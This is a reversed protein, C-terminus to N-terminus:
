HAATRSPRACRELFRVSSTFLTVWNKVNTLGHSEDDFILLEVDAGAATALKAFERSEAVPVRFDLAGHIILLPADLNAVHTRPSISELFERDHELSGYEAEVVARRLPATGELYSTMSAIGMVDIGGAWCGAQMTLGCLVLYGGYSAGALFVPGTLGCENRVHRLVARMDEIADPRRRRDDLSYWRRGYGTSGRVDPAFVRFGQAALVLRLPSFSVREHELPGGHLLIVVPGSTGPLASPSWYSHVPIAEGDDALATAFRHQLDTCIPVGADFLRTRADTDRDVLTLEAPTTPRSALMAVFRRSPSVSAQVTGAVTMVNVPATDYLHDEGCSSRLGIVRSEGDIAVACVDADDFAMFETSHQDAFAYRWSQVRDSCHDTNFILDGAPTWCTPQNLGDTVVARARNVSEIREVAYISAQWGDAGLVSVAARVHERGGEDALVLVKADLVFGDAEYLLIDRGDSLVIRLDFDGAGRHNTVYSFWGDGADVLYNTVGNAGELLRRIGGRDDVASISFLGDGRDDHQVVILHEAQMFRASKVRRHEFVVRHGTQNMVALTYGDVAPLLALVAADDSVDLLQCPRVSAIAEYHDAVSRARRSDQM